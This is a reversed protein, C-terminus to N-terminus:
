LVEFLSNFDNSPQDVHFVFIPRHPGRRPGLNRITMQMPARPNKGEASGYGAFVVPRDEPELAIRQVAKELFPAALAAGGAPIKAHRNYAGKGEMVGHSLKVEDSMKIEKKRSQKSPFSM